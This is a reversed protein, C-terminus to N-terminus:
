RAREVVRGEPCFGRWREILWPTAVLQQLQTGALAGESCTGRSRTWTSGTEADRMRDGELPEFTLTRDGVRAEFAVATSTEPDFVSVVPREDIVDQVLGVSRLAAYPFLVPEGGPRTIVSLGFRDLRDAAAFQGMFGQARRGLLVKTEPHQERWASWRTVTSPIFRLRKGALPGVVAQGTTHVWLSRTERDYMVFSNRYLIGEHGFSLVREGEGGEITRGYV